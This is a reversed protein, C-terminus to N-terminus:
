QSREGPDIISYIMSSSGAGLSEQVDLMDQIYTGGEKGGSFSRATMRSALSDMYTVQHCRGDLFRPFYGARVLCMRSGSFRMTRSLGVWRVERLLTHEKTRLTRYHRDIYPKLTNAIFDIYADGKALANLIFTTNMSVAHTRERDRGCYQGAPRQRDTFRPM